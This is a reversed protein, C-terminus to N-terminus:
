DVDTSQRRYDKPVFFLYDNRAKATHCGHCFAVKDANDGATDGFFSGDPLIMVYRWDATKPSTGPALKEMVFLPAGFVDGDATVTFSDKALVSGPPMPGAAEMKGYAKAVDNAYNNVYRNGHTASRYPADNYIRWGRFRTFKAVRSAAYGRELAEAIQQYISLADAKSLNAPREIKLHRKPAVAEGQDATQAWVTPGDVTTAVLAFALATGAALIAARSM